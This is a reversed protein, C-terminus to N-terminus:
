FYCNNGNCLRTGQLEWSPDVWAQGATSMCGDQYSLRNSFPLYQQLLIRQYAFDKTFKLELKNLLLSFVQQQRNNGIQEYEYKGLISQFHRGSSITVELERWEKLDLKVANKLYIKIKNQTKSNKMKVHNLILM